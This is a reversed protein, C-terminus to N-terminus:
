DSYMHVKVKFAKAKARIATRGPSTFVLRCLQLSYDLRIHSFKEKQLSWIWILLNYSLRSMAFAPFPTNSRCFRKLRSDESPSRTEVTSLPSVRGLQRGSESANITTQMTCRNVMAHM